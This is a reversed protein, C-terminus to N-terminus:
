CAPPFGNDVIAHCYKLVDEQNQDYMLEIWTNYQPAAFLAADPLKGDPPFFTKAAYRYADRLETGAPWSHIANGTSTVRLTKDKFEFRFAKESWVYPGEVLRSRPTSIGATTATSTSISPAVGYPMKTGLTVAGGWWVENPLLELKLESQVTNQAGVSTVVLLMACCCPHLANM